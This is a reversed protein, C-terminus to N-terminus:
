DNVLWWLRSFEVGLVWWCLMSSLWLKLALRGATAAPSPSSREARLLARPLIPNLL